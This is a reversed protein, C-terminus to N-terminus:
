GEFKEAFIRFEDDFAQLDLMEICFIDNVLDQIHVTLAAGGLRFQVGAQRLLFGLGGLDTGQHLLAAAVFRFGGLFRDGFQFLLGLREFLFHGFRLLFLLFEDDQQRVKGTGEDRFATGGFVIEHDLFAAGFRM